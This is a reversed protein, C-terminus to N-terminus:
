CAKANLYGFVFLGLVDYNEVQALNRREGIEKHDAGARRFRMELGDVATDPFSDSLMRM